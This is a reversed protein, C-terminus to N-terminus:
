WRADEIKDIAHKILESDKDFEKADYADNLLDSAEDLNDIAAESDEARQSYQLNEPINDYYDQEEDKLNDLINIWAYLDERDQIKGLGYLVQGLEKRRTKNM